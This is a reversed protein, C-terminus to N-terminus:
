RNTRLYDHPSLTAIGRWPHMELLDEDGTIIVDARGNLAVELFKDDSPDRCERVLQIVSVFEAVGAVQALFRAREERSIYRDFKPRALVQTLEHMTSESLLVVDREIAQNVARRPVSEPFVVASVFVNTDIVLRRM